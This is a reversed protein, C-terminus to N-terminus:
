GGRPRNKVSYRSSALVERVVKSTTEMSVSCRNYLSRQVKRVTDWDPHPHTDDFIFLGHNRQRRRRQTRQDVAMNFAHPDGNRLAWESAWRVSFWARRRLCCRSASDRKWCSAAHTSSLVPKLWRMCMCWWMGASALSLKSVVALM